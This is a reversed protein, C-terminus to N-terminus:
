VSIIIALLEHLEIDLGVAIISSLFNDQVWCPELVKDPLLKVGGHLVITM